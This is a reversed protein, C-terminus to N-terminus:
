RGIGEGMIGKKTKDRVVHSEHSKVSREYAEREKNNVPRTLFVEILRMIEDIVTNLDDDSIQWDYCKIVVTQAIEKRAREILNWYHDDSLNGQATHENIIMRVINCIKMIGEPSAYPVGIIRDEEYFQGEKTQKILTEKASLFNKIDMVLPQTDIRKLMFSQNGVYAENSSIGGNLFQQEQKDINM